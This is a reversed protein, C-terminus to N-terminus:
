ERMALPSPLYPQWETSQAKKRLEEVMIVSKQKDYQAQWSVALQPNEAQAGYNQQFGSGFIMSASIFLDPVQLTLFTSTNSSSLATPRATGLCEVQYIADPTPAVRIDPLAGTTLTSQNFAYMTPVGRLSVTAQDPWTYNMFEISVRDLKNRVGSDPATSAPTIVNASQLVILNSPVTLNRSGAATNVTATVVTSLFDFERYILLEAYQIMDPLINNIDTMAFPTASTPDTVTYQLLDGIATIYGSYNM